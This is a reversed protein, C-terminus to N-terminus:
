MAIASFSRSTLPYSAIPPSTNAAPSTAYPINKNKCSRNSSDLEKVIGAAM